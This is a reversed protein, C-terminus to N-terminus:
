SKTYIKGGIHYFLLKKSDQMIKFIMKYAPFYFTIIFYQIRLLEINLHMKLNKKPTAFRKWFMFSWKINKNIVM